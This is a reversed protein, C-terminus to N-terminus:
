FKRFFPHTAIALIESDGKSDGYVFIEKYSDLNFDSKLRRLKEPGFCNNGNFKGTLAEGKFDLRTAILALGNALCWEKLWNEPSASVVVVEHGNRKHFELKEIAEKRTISPINNLSYTDCCSQFHHINEGRLFITLLIEKARWNPIIRFIYLVFVPTFLVLGLLFKFKGAHFLLFDFLSDKVTLTGDFDFVALTM